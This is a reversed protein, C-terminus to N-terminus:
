RLSRLHAGRERERRRLAAVLPSPIEVALAKEAREEEAVGGCETGSRTEHATSIDPSEVVISAPTIVKAPVPAGKWAPVAASGTLGRTRGWVCSV